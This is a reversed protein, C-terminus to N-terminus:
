ENVLSKVDIDTNTIFIAVIHYLVFCELENCDCGYTELIDGEILKMQHQLKEGWKDRGYNCNTGIM